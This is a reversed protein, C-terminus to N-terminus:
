PTASFFTSLVMFCEVPHRKYIEHFGQDLCTNAYKKLASGHIVPILTADISENPSSTFVGDVDTVLILKTAKLHQAIFLAITDSTIMWDHPLEDHVQLFRAPLLIFPMLYSPDLLPIASDIVQSKPLLDSLLLGYQHMGYIAMWHASSDSLKWEEDITRILDAFVSGGPIIICYTDWTYSTLAQCLKRLEVPHKILSGGIKVVILNM